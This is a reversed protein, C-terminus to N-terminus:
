LPHNELWESDEAKKTFNWLSDKDISSSILLRTDSVRDFEVDYFRLVHEVRDVHEKTLLAPDEVFGERNDLVLPM